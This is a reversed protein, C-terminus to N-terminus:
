SAAGIPAPAVSEALAVIGDVMAAEETELDADLDFVYQYVHLDDIDGVHRLRNWESGAARPQVVVVIPARFSAGYTIVQNLDSREPGKATPRYKVDLVLATQGDNTVVIDPTARESPQADFLLKAGERNGDLVSVSAHSAIGGRLVNRVYREFVNDMQVVVSPMRVEAGERDLALASGRAILRAIDIANRYYSRTTPLPQVGAVFPDSLFGLRRDLTADDFLPYVGNLRAALRRQRGTLDKSQAYARALLWVAMKLCRNAPVDATREFWSARVSTSGGAAALQTEVASLVLRGRPSSTREVRREYGRLRGYAEILRIEGLLSEAYLDRLNPLETADLSYGRSNDEIVQPAFGSLRLVRGLNVIPCRPAVDVAVRDNIPIFGIFGGAQLRLQQKKLQFTFYRGATASELDLEGNTLLDRLPVDLM